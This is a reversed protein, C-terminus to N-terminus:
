IHLISKPANAICDYTPGSSCLKLIENSFFNCRWHHTWIRGMGYHYLLSRTHRLCTSVSILAHMWGAWPFWPGDTITRPAIWWPPAGPWGPHSSSCADNCGSSGCALTTNPHFKIYTCSLVRGYTASLVNINRFCCSMSTMSQGVILGSLIGISFTQSWMNIQIRSMSPIEAVPWIADLEEGFTAPSCNLRISNSCQHLSHRTTHPGSSSSVRSILLVMVDTIIHDIWAGHTKSM